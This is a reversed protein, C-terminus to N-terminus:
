FFINLEESFFFDKEINDYHFERSFLKLTGLESVTVLNHSTHWNKAEIFDQSSIMKVGSKM